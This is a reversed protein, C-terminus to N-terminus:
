ESEAISVCIRSSDSFLQSFIIPASTRFHRTAPLLNYGSNIAFKLSERGFKAFSQLWNRGRIMLYSDKSYCRGRIEETLPNIIASNRILKTKGYRRDATDNVFVCFGKTIVQVRFTDFERFTVVFIEVSQRGEQAFM